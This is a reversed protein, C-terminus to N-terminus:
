GEGLPMAAKKVLYAGQGIGFGALLSNDVDPLSVHALYQITGLSHFCALGFIVVATLAVFIMQFDGIDVDGKNNQFLDTILNPEGNDVDPTKPAKPSPQRAVAQATAKAVTTVVNAGLPALASNVVAVANSTDTSAVAQSVQDVVSQPVGAAAAALGAEKGVAVSNETAATVVKQATVAKAAGFTLASLGTLSMVNATLSVGDLYDWGLYMVRLIVTAVYFTMATGFWIALQCKSNSYRNDAGVLFEWPRGWVAVTAAALVLLASFGLVLLQNQVPPAVTRIALLCKDPQLQPNLDGRFVVQDDIDLTRGVNKQVVNANCLILTGKPLAQGDERIQFSVREPEQGTAAIKGTVVANAVAATQAAAPLSLGAVCVTLTVALLGRAVIFINM